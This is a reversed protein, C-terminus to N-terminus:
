RHASPDGGRPSRRWIWLALLAIILLFSSVELKVTEPM